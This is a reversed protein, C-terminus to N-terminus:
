AAGAKAGAAAPRGLVRVAENVKERMTAESDLLILLEGDDMELLMGTIKGALQPEYRAVMPFLKEGLMQKRVAPPANALAAATLPPAAATPGGCVAPPLRAALPAAAPGQALMGPGPFAPPFLGPRMLAMPGGMLGWPPMTPWMPRQPVGPAGAMPAYYMAPMGQPPMAFMGAAAQPMAMSAGWRPDKGGAGKGRGWGKGTGKPNGKERREAGKGVALGVHLPPQQPIAEKLHMEAVAATAEDMTAFRVFGFGKCAGTERDLVAKVDTVPGFEEFLAKLRGDTMDAPLNRVYLKIGEFRGQRAEQRQKVELERESRSKSRGVFLCYSPLREQKAAGDGQEEDQGDKEEAEERAAEQQEPSRLDKGHLAEIAKAASEPEKFNIFGYRRESRGDNMVLSSTIEGFPAFLEQVQVDDWDSPVNRLYVSCDGAEANQEWRDRKLFHGVFVKRGGILMGNVREIAQKAADESEYQVFGYGRSGGQADTSVKCSLIHGFISFTDYLNRSDINPDLNKVFINAEQSARVQRERNNWMIRCCRGRIETYNLKDMAQQADVHSYYNVYAYGLSRRTVSDRCVHIIAIPGHAAFKEQLHIETTDPHLDGVYLTALGAGRGADASSM